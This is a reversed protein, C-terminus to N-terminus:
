LRVTAGGLASLCPHRSAILTSTMRYNKKKHDARVPALYVQNIDELM